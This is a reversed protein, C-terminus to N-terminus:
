SAKRRKGAALRQRDYVRKEEIRAENRETQAVIYCEICRGRRRPLHGRRRLWYFATEPLERQCGRCVKVRTKM